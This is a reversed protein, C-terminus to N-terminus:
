KSHRKKSRKVILIVLLAACVTMITIWLWINSTDGTKSGYTNNTNGTNSANDGQNGQNPNNRDPVSKHTNTVNFGDISTRYAEIPEEKVTYVIESGGANYKPLAFSYKWHSSEDLSFSIKRQGDALIYLTISKPTNTNTGHNWTKEGSIIVTEKSPVPDDAEDFTNNIIFSDEATQTIQKTYGDPVTPEDVTWAASEDLSRWTHTWNNETNLTVPEGYAAGDKYLQVQVSDPQNPDSGTWVKTVTIDPEGTYANTIDYGNITTEFKPVAAEDVTYQIETTGDATDGNTVRYRPATFTYKWDGNADPTVTVTEVIRDGDKLYVTISEPQVDSQDTGESLNSFDWTKEGSIEVMETGIFTNTATVQITQTTATGYGSAIAQSYGDPLYNKETVEYVAGIPLTFSKTEGAKLNFYQPVGDIMLTFEFENDNDTAPINGQVVKEVTLSAEAKKYNHFASKATGNAPITGSVIEVSATYGDASYDDESVTYTVGAPIDYFMATEGHKLTLMNGSTLPQEASGNIKYMHTEGDSFTVTFAFEKNADANDGSVQKSIELSGTPIVISNDFNHFAAQATGNAVINGAVEKVSATYGDTSYTDATVTDDDVSYDERTVTDGDTSYDDEVVTYSDASYDDETVTYADASYDDETVTYSLGAPLNQFVATEGHKLTIKGGSTLTQETGGDIKYIYTGGDSFIVTFEFEKSPDGDTKKSIELSGSFDEYTNTFEATIGEIPINGSSNTSSITYGAAPTETVTYQVGVSIASFVATQGHKLNLTGGSEITLQANNITCQYTGGDSFTVTFEFEIKKQADTVESGDNNIVTKTIELPASLRQNYANVEATDGGSESDVTFYYKTIDAGGDSDYTYGYGPSTELFYYEGSKLGSVKIQGNQGTVYRGSGAQTGDAHYLYFETGELLTATLNGDTDKEYKNLTVAYTKNSGSFENVENQNLSFWALTGTIMASCLLVLALLLCVARHSFIHNKIWNKM